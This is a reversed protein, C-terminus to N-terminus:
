FFAGFNFHTEWGPNFKNFGYGYDLGVRGVLPVQLRIGFGAGKRLNTLDAEAFSNWTDGQDVFALLHVARTVPYLVETTLTTFFEGGVFTLNGRPVVSLDRYGRLGYIRNGGLRFKEYDPVQLTKGFSTIWGVSTEMHFVFKAPLAQYWDYNALVKHFDLDGGLPGGNLEYRFLSSSGDTPFFPNDTSNRSLSLTITSRAQPWDEKDLRQVGIDGRQRELEDLTRVYAPDFNSLSTLSYGYRISVRSFRTFPIPRGLRIAGGKVRTDYYDNVQNSFRNFVDIGLLTPTGRFWPMTYSLNLFNARSGFQWSFQLANGRGFLNTEGIQLFGTARSQQSFGMGMSFQGTQKEKVKLTLDIDGENNAPKFDVQVDEFFGLQFIRRQSDQLRSSVFLDGPKIRLERRVVEEHTKTNGTIYLDHIRAPKGERFTFHVDVIHDHIDRTPEVTIYIYGSEWYLSNLSQVTEQFVSESFVRGTQLAIVSAIREDNFVTNGDWTIKGVEFRPGEKVKIFLDLKKKGEVFVKRVEVVQADLYGRDKYNDILKQLDEEFEAKKFTGGRIWNDTKTKWGHRLDSANVRENGEIHIAHVKVKEGEVVRVVLTQRGGVAYITSDTSVQANYYGESQYKQEVKFLARTVKGPSIIDGVKLDIEEKLDKVKLKKVGTFEVGALRPYEALNFIVEVGDAVKNQYAYIERFKGLSALKRVATSISERTVEKGIKLGSWSVVQDASITTVGVVRVRVLKGAVAESALLLLLLSVAAIVARQRPGHVLMATM